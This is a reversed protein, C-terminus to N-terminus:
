PEVQYQSAALKVAEALTPANFTQLSTTIQPDVRGTLLELAFGDAEKEQEDPEKAFAPDQLDVLLPAGDLHGSVIHGLEHALTFAVPAPYNADKGLLIAFRNGISVVMAHMKKAELPFVRLHIVPIGVSWCLSLLLELDVFASGTRLLEQRLIQADFGVLSGGEKTANILIRGVALGFATLAARDGEDEAKLHKFKASDDWVFEVRQGLLGKPSMGLKRALAFRLEARGSASDALEDRWWNPWAADIARSSIGAQRL